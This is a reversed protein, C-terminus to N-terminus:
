RHNKEEPECNTPASGTVENANQNDINNKLWNRLPDLVREDSDLAYQTGSYGGPKDRNGLVQFAHIFKLRQVTSDRPVALSTADGEASFVRVDAEHKMNKLDSADLLARLQTLQNETLSGEFARAQIGDLYEQSSKERRYWGDVYVIVCNREVKGGRFYDRVLTMLYTDLKTQNEEVGAKLEQNLPPPMCHSAKSEAIQQHQFKPLKDLWKLLPETGSRFNKRADPSNFNLHQEGDMRYIDILFTDVTDVIMPRPIDNRSIKRLETADLIQNFEELATPGLSGDYVELKAAYRRELRYVGTREILACVDEHRQLRELRALVPPPTYLHGSDQGVMCMSTLVVTALIRLAAYMARSGMGKMAPM